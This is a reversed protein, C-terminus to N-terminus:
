RILEGINSCYWFCVIFATILSPSLANIISRGPLNAQPSLPTKSAAPASKIPSTLEVSEQILAETELEGGKKQLPMTGLGTNHPHLALFSHDVCISCLSDFYPLHRAISGRPLM